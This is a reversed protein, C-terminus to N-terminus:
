DVEEYTPYGKGPFVGIHAEDGETIEHQATVLTVDHKQAM